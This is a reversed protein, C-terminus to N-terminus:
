FFKKWLKKGKETELFVLIGCSGLLCFGALIFILPLLAVNRTTHDAEAAIRIPQNERPPSTASTTGLVAGFSSIGNTLSPFLTPSPTLSRSSTSRTPTPTSSGSSASPTPTPPIPTSTPTPLPMPTNTPAPPVVIAISVPDSWTATSGTQTYRGLKVDYTGSGTTFNPDDSDIKGQVDGWWAGTGDTTLSLFNAYNIPSPTGNYWSSGNYTSGFYNSTGPQAFVVRMRYIANKSLGSMTASLIFSQDLSLTTQPYAIIQPAGAFALSPYFFLFLLAVSLKPLIRSCM